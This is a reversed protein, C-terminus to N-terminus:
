STSCGQVACTMTQAASLRASRMHHCASCAFNTPAPKCAPVSAALPWVKRMRAAPTGPRPYFQSIHCTAFRYRAVLALTAEHDEATEAADPAALTLLQKASNCFAASHFSM